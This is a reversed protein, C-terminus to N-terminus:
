QPVSWLIQYPVAWMRPGIPEIKEGLYLVFGGSFQHDTLEALYKLGESMSIDPAHLLSIDFGFVRGDHHELVLDVTKNRITKLHFLGADANFNGIHRQLENAVFGIIPSRARDPDSFFSKHDLGMLHCALGSDSLVVKPAKLLRSDKMTLWPPISQVLFLRSLHDLYRRLTTDPLGTERALGLTNLSQGARIAIIQMLRYVAHVHEIQSIDKIDRDLLSRVYSSYWAKQASDTKRLKADPFGGSVIRKALDSETEIQGSFQPRFNRDFLTETLNFQPNREWESQTFPMLDIVEVRGALSDSVKPLTLVNASGTLLFRGPQRNRDIFLKLTRLLEPARQIEDIVLPEEYTKLFEQPSQTALNLAIPDDLTVSSWHPQTELLKQALTSKGAQRPGVVLTAPSRDVAELLTTDHTREFNNIRGLDM